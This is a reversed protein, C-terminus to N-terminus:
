ETEKDQCVSLGIVQIGSNNQRIQRTAEIGNMNPMNVDMVVVDPQLCETLRIAEKGDGAEGVVEIDSFADLLSRLGQRVVAHDDVPIVRFVSSTRPSSGRNIGSAM